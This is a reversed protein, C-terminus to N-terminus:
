SGGEQVVNGLSPLVECRMWEGLQAREDPNMGGAPPMSESDVAQDYIADAWEVVDDYTDFDVGLPADGRQGLRVNEGHCPRCHRGVLGDGFNEWDLPPDRLCSTGIPVGHGILHDDCASPALLAFLGLAARFPLGGVALPQRRRSPRTESSTGSM